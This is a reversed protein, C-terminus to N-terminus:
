LKSALKNEFFESLLEQVEKISIKEIIEEGFASLLLNRAKDPDIGRARLYFLHDEDLSGSTAGHSCKVDDAYIELEPKTNITATDSLLVNKNSQYANTKQADPRVLIKGNFVATSNDSIIGKYIENSNCNPMSHDVFTHNDIYNNKDAFYFGYYHTEAFEEAYKTHLNNRTFKGDLSITVDNFVSNKHQSAFSKGIYIHSDPMIQIRYFNLIADQELICETVSASFSSEEGIKHYTEIIKAQSNAELKIFNRPFSATQKEGTFIQIFHLPHEIVSNKKIVICAGDQSFASNLSLFADGCEEQSMSFETPLNNSKYLSSIPSFEIGKDIINSLNEIYMGDVFVLVNAKLNKFLYDDIKINEIDFNSNIDFDFYNLFALNSYKWEEVKPTPLGSHEFCKFAQKKKDIVESSFNSNAIFDDFKAIFKNFFGNNNINEM